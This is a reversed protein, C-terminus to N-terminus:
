IKSVSRAVKREWSSDPSQWCFNLWKGLIGRVGDVLEGDEALESERVVAKRLGYDVEMIKNISKFNDEVEWISGSGGLIVAGRGPHSQNAIAFRSVVFRIALSALDSGKEEVWEAAKKSAIRLDSPAPHFDGLEAIPVGNKRLLGMSLPSATFVVDVGLGYLAPLYSELMTNQLTFHAYSQVADLPRGFYSKLLLALELLRQPPYGSIGVYRIKGEDRLSYLCSVAELVEETSVFEVDHCFVVDLYSTHFRRLSREVSARIHEKSYNFENASVRGAKTMLISKERDYVGDQALAFLAKGFLVESDGYYPSTDFACFGLQLARGIIEKHPLEDPKLSLQGSFAACGLVYNPIVDSLKTDTRGLEPKTQQKRTPAPVEM